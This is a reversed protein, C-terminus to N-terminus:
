NNCNVAFSRCLYQGSVMNVCIIEGFLYFKIKENHSPSAHRQVTSILTTYESCGNCAVGSMILKACHLLHYTIWAESPGSLEASNTQESTASKCLHFDIVLFVLPNIPDPESIDTENGEM